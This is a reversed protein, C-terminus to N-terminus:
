RSLARRWSGRGTCLCAAGRVAEEIAEERPARSRAVAVATVGLAGVCMRCRTPRELAFAAVAQAAAPDEALQEYAEVRAGDAVDGWPTRCSTCIEGDLLVRCAGCSGDNCGRAASRVGVEGRLVELLPRAPDADISM